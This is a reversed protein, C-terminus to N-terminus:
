SISRIVDEGIEGSAEDGTVDVDSKEAPAAAAREKLEAANVADSALEILVALAAPAATECPPFGLAPATIVTAVMAGGAPASALGPDLAPFATTIEDVSGFEPAVDVVTMAGTLVDALEPAPGLAATM